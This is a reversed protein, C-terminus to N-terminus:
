SPPWVNLWQEVVVWVVLWPGQSLPVHWLDYRLLLFYSLCLPLDVFSANGQVVPMELIVKRHYSLIQKRIFMCSFSFLVVELM